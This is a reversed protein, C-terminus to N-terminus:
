DAFMAGLHVGIGSSTRFKREHPKGVTATRLAMLLITYGSHHRTVAIM